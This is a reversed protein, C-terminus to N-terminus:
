SEFSSNKVFILDGVHREGTKGGVIKTRM